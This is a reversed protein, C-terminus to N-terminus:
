TKSLTMEIGFINKQNCVKNIEKTMKGQNSRQLTLVWYDLVEMTKGAPVVVAVVWSSSCCEVDEEMQMEVFSEWHLVLNEGVLYTKFGM